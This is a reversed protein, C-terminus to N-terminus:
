AQDGTALCHWAATPDALAGADTRSVLDTTGAAKANAYTFASGTTVAQGISCNNDTSSFDTAWTFTIQGTGVDTVSTLNYSGLVAGAVDAVGWGKGHGPHFHQRGPSAFVNTASAAEEEAQTAASSGAPASWTADAKLFRGAAADGAAPAPALGKTGGAGSDGVMNNLIATAETATLDVPVGTGAGAARGKITSQPMNALRANALTGTWGATISAANVLATNPAGGLTLTVNTDDVKTLAGLASNGTGGRAVSLQGTWGVTVSTAALLATAPAGALTLTVNTDDVRTLAAGGTVNAAAPTMTSQAAATILGKGNVTFAASLSGSGWTGVNSNVTALTLATGGAAKSADGTFASSQIGGSGTFELGGGVSIEETAGTGATDRGLLRDTAQVLTHEANWEDSGVPSIGDDPVVTQTAHKLSITM